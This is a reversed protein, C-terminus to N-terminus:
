HRPSGLVLHRRHQGLLRAPHLLGQRLRASGPRLYLPDLAQGGLPVVPGRLPRAQLTPEVPRQVRGHQLRLPLGGPPTDQGEQRMESWVRLLTMYNHEYLIGNTCDFFVFDVGAASLQEAHKRLVWEDNSAYYGFYPEAWYHAFGEPGSVMEAWLGDMGGNLYAKTHDYVPMGNKNDEHWLFYFIGVKKDNPTGVTASFLTRDAGDVGVWTDALVDRNTPIIGDNDQEGVTSTVKMAFDKVVPSAGPCHSWLHTYGGKTIGTIIKDKVAPEAADGIYLEIHSKTIDIHAIETLASDEGAYITIRNAAPDDVVTLRVGQGFDVPVEAYTTEPWNGTRIGITNNRMAMWVGSRSTANDAVNPLRMGLYITNWGGDTHGVGHTLHFTYTTAQEGSSAVRSYIGNVGGQRFTVNGGEIIPDNVIGYTSQLTSENVPYAEEVQKSGFTYAPLSLSTTTTYSGTKPEDPNAPADTSTETSADTAPDTSVVGDATTDSSQGSTCASLAGLTMIGALLAALVRASLKM